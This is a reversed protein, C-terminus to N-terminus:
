LITLLDEPPRGIAAKTKGVLIPRELLSPNESLIKQWEKLKPTQNKLDLDKYLQEKKRIFEEPSRNLKDSLEKVEKQSLGDKLYEKIKLKVGKEELLALGQRSKSCRPNHYYTYM